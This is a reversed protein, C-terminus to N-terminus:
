QQSVRAVAHVIHHGIRGEPFFGGEGESILLPLLLFVLQDIVPLIEPGGTRVLLQVKDLMDVREQFRRALGGDHDRVVYQEFAACTLDDAPFEQLGAIQMCNEAQGGADEILGPDLCIDNKYIEPCYGWRCPSKAGGERLKLEVKVSSLEVQMLPM